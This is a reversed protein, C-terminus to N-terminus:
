CEFFVNESCLSLAGASHGCQLGHSPCLNDAPVPTGNGKLDGSLWPALPGYIVLPIPKFCRSPGDAWAVRVVGQDEGAAYREGGSGLASVQNIKIPTGKSHPNM